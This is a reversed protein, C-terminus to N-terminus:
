NKNKNITKNKNANAWTSGRFHMNRRCIWTGMGGGGGLLATSPGVNGIGRATTSWAEGASSGVAGALGRAFFDSFDPRKILSSFRSVPDAKLRAVTVAKTLAMPPAGTMMVMKATYTKKSTSGGHAGGGHGGWRHRRRPCLSAGGFGLTCQKPAATSAGVAGFSKAGDGFSPAHPHPAQPHTTTM